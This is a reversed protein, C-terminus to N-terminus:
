LSVFINKTYAYHHFIMSEIVRVTNSKDKATTVIMKKM